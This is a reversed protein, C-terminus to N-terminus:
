EIKLTLTITLNSRNNELHIQYTSHRKNEVFFKRLM